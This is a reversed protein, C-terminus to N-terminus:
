GIYFKLFLFNHFFIFIIVKLKIGRLLRKVRPNGKCIKQIQDESIKGGGTSFIDDMVKLAETYEDLNGLSLGKMKEITEHKLIKELLM